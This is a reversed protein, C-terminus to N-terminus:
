GAGLPAAEIRQLLRERPSTSCPRGAFGPASGLEAIPLYRAVEATLAALTVGALRAHEAQGQGRRRRHPARIGARDGPGGRLLDRPLLGTRLRRRRRAGSALALRDAETGRRDHDRQRQQPRGPLARGWAVLRDILALIRPRRHAGSGRRVLGALKEGGLRALLARAGAAAGRHVTMAVEALIEGVQESPCLAAGRCTCCHRGTWAPCSWASAGM